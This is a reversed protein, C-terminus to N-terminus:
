SNMEELVQKLRVFWHQCIIVDKEISVDEFCSTKMSYEAFYYYFADLYKILDSLDVESTLFEQLPQLNLEERNM